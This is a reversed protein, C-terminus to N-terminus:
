SNNCPQLKMLEEEDRITTVERADKNKRMMIKGNRFWVYAYNNQKAFNRAKWFLSKM